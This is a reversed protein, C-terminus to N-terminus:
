KETLDKERGKLKSFLNRLDFTDKLRDFIGKRKKLEVERAEDEYVFDIPSVEGGRVRGEKVKNELGNELGNESGKELSNKNNESSNKSDKEHESILNKFIARGIMTDKFEGIAKDLFRRNLWLEEYFYRCKKRMEQREECLKNFSYFEGLEDRVLDWFLFGDSLDFEDLDFDDGKLYPLSRQLCLSLIEVGCIKPSSIMFGFYFRREFDRLKSFFWAEKRALELSREILDRYTRYDELDEESYFGFEPFVRKGAKYEEYEKRYDNVVFYRFWYNFIREFADIILNIFEPSVIFFPGASELFAFYAKVRHLPGEAEYVGAFFEKNPLPMETERELWHQNCLVLCYNKQAALAELAERLVSDDKAQRLELDGQSGFFESAIKIGRYLGIYNVYTYPFSAFSRFNEFFYFYSKFWNFLSFTEKTKFMEVLRELSGGNIRVNWYDGSKSFRELAYYDLNPNKAMYEFIDMIRDGITFPSSLYFSLTRSLMAHPEFKVVSGVDGLPKEDVRGEREFRDHLESVHRRLFEFKSDSVLERLYRLYVGVGNAKSIAEYFIEPFFKLFDVVVFKRDDDLKGRDIYRDAGPMLFNCFASGFFSREPFFKLIHLVVDVVEKRKKEGLRNKIALRRARELVVFAVLMLFVLKVCLYCHEVFAVRSKDEILYYMKRERDYVWEYYFSPIARRSELIQEFVKVGRFYRDEDDCLVKRLVDEPVMSWNPLSQTCYSRAIDKRYANLYGKWESIETTEMDFDFEKCADWYKKFLKRDFLESEFAVLFDKIGKWSEKSFINGGFFMREFSELVNSNFYLVTGRHVKCYIPEVRM